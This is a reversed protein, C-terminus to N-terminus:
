QTKQRRGEELIRESRIETIRTELRAIDKRLPRLRGSDKKLTGKASITKLKTLENRTDRLRNHVDKESLKRIESM